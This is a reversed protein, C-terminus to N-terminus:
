KINIQKLANIFAKKVKNEATKSSFELLTYLGILDMPGLTQQVCVNFLTKSINGGNLYVVFENVNNFKKEDKDNAKINGSFFSDLHNKYIELATM